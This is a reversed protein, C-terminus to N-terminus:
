FSATWYPRASNVTILDVNPLSLAAVGASMPFWSRRQFLVAPNKCASAILEESFAGHRAIVVLGIDVPAYSPFGTYGTAGGIHIFTGNMAASTSQTAYTLGDLTISKLGSRGARGFVTVEAGAALSAVSTAKQPTGGIGRVVTSVQGTPELSIGAIIPNITSAASSSHCVVWAASAPLSRVRMSILMDFGTARGEWGSLLTETNNNFSFADGETIGRKFVCGSWGPHTKTSYVLSGDRLENILADREGFLASVGVRAIAM